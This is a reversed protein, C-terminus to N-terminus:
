IDSNMLQIYKDKYVKMYEIIAESYNKRICLKLLYHYQKDATLTRNFRYMNYKEFYEYVEKQHEARQIIDELLHYEHSPLIAFFDFEGEQNYMFVMRKRTRAGDINSIVAAYYGRLSHSLAHFKYPQIRKSGRREMRSSEALKNITELPLKQVANMTLIANKKIDKKSLYYFLIPPHPLPGNPPYTRPNGFFIKHFTNSLKTQFSTRLLYKIM